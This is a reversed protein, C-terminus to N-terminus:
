DKLIILNNKVTLKPSDLRYWNGELQIFYDDDGINEVDTQSLESDTVYEHPYCVTLTDYRTYVDVTPVDRRVYDEIGDCWTRCDECLYEGNWESWALEDPTDDDYGFFVRGCYECSWPTGAAEGDTSDLPIAGYFHCTSITNDNDNFYRFSDVYPYYDYRHKLKITLCPSVTNGNPDYWEQDEGTDLLSNNIRRYWKNLKAYEIFQDELYDECTYVRDMYTNGDIEWVIARGMVLDNKFYVLMKAHDEYLKFYPQCENYRMCSRGLTGSLKYYNDEHYYKTIDSGSVLKFEGLSIMNAKLLNNFVEIDKEKYEHVMLKKILRGPKGTQRNERSWTGSDSYKLEKGKPTFSIEFIDRRISLARVEDTILTNIKDNLTSQVLDVDIDNSFYKLSPLANYSEILKHAELLESAIKSENTKLIANLIDLLGDSLLPLLKNM